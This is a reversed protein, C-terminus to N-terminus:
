SELNEKLLQKFNDLMKQYNDLVTNNDGVLSVTFAKDNTEILLWADYMDQKFTISFPQNPLTYADNNRRQYHMGWNLFKHQNLSESLKNYIYINTFM